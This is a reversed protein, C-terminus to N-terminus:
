IILSSVETDNGFRAGMEFDYSMECFTIGRVEQKNKLVYWYPMKIEFLRRKSPPLKLVEDKFLLPIIPIQLYDIKRTVENNDERNPNDFIGSLREQTKDYQESADIFNKSKEIKFHSYVREVIRILDAETLNEPSSAFSDFSNTL